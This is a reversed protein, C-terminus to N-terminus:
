YKLFKRKAWSGLLFLVIGNDLRKGILISILKEQKSEFDIFFQYRILLYLQVGVSHVDVPLLVM